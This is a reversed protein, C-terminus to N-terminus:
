RGCCPCANSLPGLNVGATHSENMISKRLNEKVVTNGNIYEDVKAIFEKREEDNLGIFGKIVKRTKENM